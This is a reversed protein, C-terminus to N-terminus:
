SAVVRKIWTLNGETFRAVYEFWEYDGNGRSGFHTYFHIDGHYNLLITTLTSQLEVLQGFSNIQYLILENNLDKTQFVSGRVREDIAKDYPAAVTLEDFMGM